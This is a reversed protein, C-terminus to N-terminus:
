PSSRGEPCATKTIGDPCYYGKPCKDSSPRASTSGESCSYGPDCEQCVSQGTMNTYFGEPCKVPEADINACYHGACFKDFVPKLIGIM